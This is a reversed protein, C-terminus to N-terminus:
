NGSDYRRFQAQIQRKMEPTPDLALARRHATLGEEIQGLAISAEGLDFWFRYRNPHLRTGVAAVEMMQDWAENRQLLIVLWLRTDFHEPLEALVVRMLRVAVERRGSTEYYKSLLVWQRPNHSIDVAAQLRLMARRMDGKDEYLRALNEYAYSANTKDYELINEFREASRSWSSHIGIWALTLVATMVLAPMTVRLLETPQKALGLARRLMILVVPVLGLSLMSFLDWDRAMGIEPKFLFLYILIPSLVLTALGWEAEHYRWGNGTEESKLNIGGDPSPTHPETPQGRRRFRMATLGLVIWLPASPLLLLIENGIDILHALSSVSYSGDATLPLYFSGLRTFQGVAVAIALTVGALGIPLYRQITQRRDPACRWAILYVLSPALLVAQIHTYIALLLLLGPLMLGGGHVARFAAIVYLVGIFILPTYFEVYGFFLVIVASGLGLALLWILMEPPLASRRWLQLILFIFIGGLFSNFYRIGDVPSKGLWGSTARAAFYYAIMAGPSIVERTVIDNLSRMVVPKDTTFGAEFSQAITEGDGWLLTASQFHVFIPVSLVAIAIFSIDIARGGIRVARMLSLLIRALARGVPPFFVMGVFVIAAIRLPLSYFALHNIGWLRVNPFFSAVVFLAYVFLNSVIAPNLFTARRPQGRKDTGGKRRSSM